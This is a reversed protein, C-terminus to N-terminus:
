VTFNKLFVLGSDSLMLKSIAGSCSFHPVVSCPQSLDGPQDQSQLCPVTLNIIDMVPSNGMFTPFNAKQLM